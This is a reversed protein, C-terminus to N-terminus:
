AVRARRAAAHMEMTEWASKSHGKAGIVEVKKIASGSAHVPKSFITSNEIYCM